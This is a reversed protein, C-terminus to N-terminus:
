CVIYTKLTRARITKAREDCLQETKAPGVVGHGSYSPAGARFM